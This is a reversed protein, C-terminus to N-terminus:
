TRLIPKQANEEVQASTNEALQDQSDPQGPQHADTHSHSGCCGLGFRHMLVMLGGVLILPLLFEFM